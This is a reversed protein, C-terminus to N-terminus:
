PAGRRAAELAEVVEAPVGGGVVPLVSVDVGSALGGPPVNVWRPHYGLFDGEDVDGNDNEDSWATLLNQGSMVAFEFATIVGDSSQSGSVHLDGYQDEQFAAVVMPGSLVSPTPESVKTFRVEYVFEEAGVEFIPQIVYFGDAELFTRDIYVDVVHSQGPELVGSVDDDDVEVAGSPVPSPNDAADYYSLFLWEATEDGVNTVTFAGHAQEAGLDLVRPSFVLEVGEVPPPPPPGGADVAELALRADILGAGCDFGYLARDPVGDAECADDSLPTASSRLAALAESTSLDPDLARMLAAVGSVHPAAMSTGQMYAYGGNPGLSLVGDATSSTLDGGPAMVDIRSGYNSYPAREGHRDTAGVVITGPCNAPTFGSAAVAFNGAAAVVVARSAAYDLAEFLAPYCTAAQVGLSLNVVDAPHQNAPVGPVSRGVAWYIADTLDSVAGGGDGLVRLPLLMAHWDVGAVGRGNDTAAGITGAVHTGHYGNDPVTDYPDGDRGDGDGSIGVNSIFDYGPLVRGALDAHRRSPDSQSYLIGTDLVAVVVDPSGTTIDWAEELAIADFHWQKGYETDNPARAPFVLYNPHAYRVDPRAELAAALALTEELTTATTRYLLAGELALPRVAELTEGAVSLRDVAAASLGPEFAVILEGPLFPTDLDIAAAGPGRAATASSGTVPSTARPARPQLVTGQPGAGSGGGVGVRVQGAVRGTGTGGPGGGCAALLAALVLAGLSWERWPGRAWAIRKSM